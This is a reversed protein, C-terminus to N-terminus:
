TNEIPRPGWTSLLAPFLFTSLLWSVTMLVLIFTGIQIYALVRTPLLCLGASLTTLAAMSVPSSMLAISHRVCRDRDGHGALRYMIGYHLTFDVSLGIALTIIVSELINLEWGLMVLIGVTILIISFVTLIAFLSLLINRTALILVIFAVTM